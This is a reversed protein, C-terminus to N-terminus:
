TTNQKVAQSRYFLSRVQRQNGSPYTLPNMLVDLVEDMDTKILATVKSDDMARGSPRTWVKIGGENKQLEWTQAYSTVCLCCVISLLLLRM